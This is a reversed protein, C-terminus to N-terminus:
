SLRRCSASIQKLRGRDFFEAVVVDVVVLLIEGGSLVMSHLLRLKFKWNLALKFKHRMVCNRTTSKQLSDLTAKKRSFRGNTEVEVELILKWM